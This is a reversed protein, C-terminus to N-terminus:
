IDKNVTFATSSVRSSVNDLLLDAEVNVSRVNRSATRASPIINDSHSILAIKATISVSFFPVIVTSSTM